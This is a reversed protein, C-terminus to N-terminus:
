KIFTRLLALILSLENVQFYQIQNELLNYDLSLRVILFLIYTIVNRFSTMFIDLCNRYLNVISRCVCVCVSKKM